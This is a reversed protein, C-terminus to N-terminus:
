CCDWNKKAGILQPTQENNYQKEPLANVQPKLYTFLDDMKISGDQKVVDENKIGKLLFYTLPRTRKWWVDFQDARGVLRVSGDYEKVSGHQEPPEDGSAARGQRDGVQRRSRFFLFWPCRHDRKAPLKEWLKMCEKWLADQRTLLSPDGDYPVLYCQGSKPDPAGHGSFLHFRLQRDGCQEAVVEWINQWISMQHM